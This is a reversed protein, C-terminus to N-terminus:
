QSAKRITAISNDAIGSSKAQLPNVLIQDNPTDQSLIAALVLKKKGGVVVELSDKIDLEKALKENIVAKGEKINESYKIRLRKEKRQVQQAMILFNPM